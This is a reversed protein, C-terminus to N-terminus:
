QSGDKSDLQWVRRAALEESLVWYIGSNKHEEMESIRTRRKQPKELIHQQKTKGVQFQTVCCIFKTM